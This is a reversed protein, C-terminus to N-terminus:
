NQITISCSTVVSNNLICNLRDAKHIQICFPFSNSTCAIHPCPLCVPPPMKEKKETNQSLAGM